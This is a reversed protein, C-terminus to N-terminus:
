VPFIVYIPGARAWCLLEVGGVWTEGKGEGGRVRARWFFVCSLPTVQYQLDNVIYLHIVQEMRKNSQMLISRTRDLLLSSELEGSSHLGRRRWLFVCQSVVHSLITIIESDFVLIRIEVVCKLQSVLIM